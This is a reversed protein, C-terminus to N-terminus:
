SPRLLTVQAPGAGILSWGMPIFPRPCDVGAAILAAQVGAMTFTGPGLHIVRTEHDITITAANM